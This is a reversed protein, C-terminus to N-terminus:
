WSSYSCASLTQPGLTAMDNWMNNYVYYSGFTQGGTESSTTFVPNTCVTMPVAADGGSSGGSGGGSSSGGSDGGGLALM